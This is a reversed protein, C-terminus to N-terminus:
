YTLVDMPFVSALAELRRRIWAKRVCWQTVFVTCVDDASVQENRLVRPM